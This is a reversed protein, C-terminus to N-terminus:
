CPLDNDDMGTVFDWVVKLQFVGFGDAVTMMHTHARTRRECVAAM